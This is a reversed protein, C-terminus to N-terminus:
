PNLGFFKKGLRQFVNGAPDIRGHAGEAGDTTLREEDVAGFARV